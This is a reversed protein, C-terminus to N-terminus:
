DALMGLDLDCVLSATTMRAMCQKQCRPKSAVDISLSTRLTPM